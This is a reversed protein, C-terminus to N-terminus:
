WSSCKLKLVDGCKLCTSNTNAEKKPINWCQQCRVRYKKYRIGCANCLPTGDEADRWLPTKRTRCSACIKSGCSDSEEESSSSRQSRCRSSRSRSRRWRRIEESYNSTIVLRSQGADLQPTMSFTVGQVGPDQPDPSREPRPQKRRRDKNVSELLNNNLDTPQSSCQSSESANLPLWVSEAERESLLCSTFDLPCVPPCDNGTSPVVSEDQDSHGEIHLASPNETKESASIHVATHTKILDALDGPEKLEEVDTLEYIVSFCTDSPVSSCPVAPRELESAPRSMVVTETVDSPHLDVGRDERGSQLLRECQQNILRMVDWASSSHESEKCSSLVLSGTDRKEVHSPGSSSSEGDAPPSLKTAEQLLLLISSQTVQQHQVDEHSSM